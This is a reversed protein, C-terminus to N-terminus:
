EEGGPLEAMSRIVNVIKEEQFPKVIFNRAGARVSEKVLKEKGLATVMCIKANPDEKIIQRVAEIGDMTPMTIDMTVVDPKLTRYLEVAKAGTDAEGVVEIDNRELMLRLNARMFQTDDAILVRIM